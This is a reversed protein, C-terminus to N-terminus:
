RLSLTLRNKNGNLLVLLLSDVGRKDDNQDTQFHSLHIANVLHGAGGKAEIFWIDQGTIYTSADRDRHVSQLALLVSQPRAIYPFRRRVICEQSEARTMGRECIQLTLGGHLSLYQMNARENHTAALAVAEPDYHM